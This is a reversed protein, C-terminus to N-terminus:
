YLLPTGSLIRDRLEFCGEDGYAGSRPDGSVPFREARLEWPLMLDAVPLYNAIHASPLSDGRLGPSVSYPM